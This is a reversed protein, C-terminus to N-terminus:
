KRVPVSVAPSMFREGEGRDEGGLSPSLRCKIHRKQGSGAGNSAFRRIPIEAHEATFRKEGTGTVSRALLQHECDHSKRPWTEILRGSFGGPCFRRGKGGPVFQPRRGRGTRGPVGSAGPGAMSGCRGIPSSITSSDASSGNIYWPPSHPFRSGTPSKMRWAREGPTTRSATCTGGTGTPGGCRCTWSSSPRGTHRSAAGGPSAVGSGDSPTISLRRAGGNSRSFAIQFTDPLPRTQTM